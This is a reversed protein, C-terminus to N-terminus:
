AQPVEDADGCLTLSTVSWPGSNASCTITVQPREGSIVKNLGLRRTHIRKDPFTRKTTAVINVPIQTTIFTDTAKIYVTVNVYFTAVGLERYKLIILHCSVDRGEQGDPIEQRFDYESSEECSFNTSDHVAVLCKGTQPQFFPTILLGNAGILGGTSTILGPNAATSTGGPSNNGGGGFGGGGPPNFVPLKFTM